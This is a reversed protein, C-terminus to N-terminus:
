KRERKKKMEEAGAQIKAWTEPEERQIQRIKDLIAQGLKRGNYEERAVEEDYNVEEWHDIPESLQNGQFDLSVKRLCRYYKGNEGQYFFHGPVRTLKM